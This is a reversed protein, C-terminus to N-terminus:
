RFGLRGQPWRVLYECIEQHAQFVTSEWSKPTGDGGEVILRTMRGEPGVSARATCGHQNALYDLMAVATEQVLLPSLSSSDRTPNFSSIDEGEFAPKVPQNCLFVVSNERGAQEGKAKKKKKKKKKKRKETAHSKGELEGEELGEYEKESEVINEDSPSATNPPPRARCADSLSPPSSEKPLLRSGCASACADTLSPSTSNNPPPRTGYADASAVSAQVSTPSARTQPCPPPLAQTSTPSVGPPGAQLCPPPLAQASTPSAEAQLCPPPL